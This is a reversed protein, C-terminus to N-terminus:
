QQFCTVEHDGMMKGFEIALLYDDCHDEDETPFMSGVDEAHDETEGMDQKNNLESAECHDFLSSPTPPGPTSSPDTPPLPDSAFPMESIDAPITAGPDAMATDPDRQDVGLDPVAAVPAALLDM